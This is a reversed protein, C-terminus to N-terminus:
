DSTMKEGENTTENTSPLSVELVATECFRVSGFGLGFAVLEGRETVARCHELRTSAGGTPGRQVQGRHMEEAFM